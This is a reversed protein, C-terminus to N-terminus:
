HKPKQRNSSTRDSPVALAPKIKKVGGILYKYASDRNDIGATAVLQQGALDAWAEWVDKV